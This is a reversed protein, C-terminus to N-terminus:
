QTLRTFLGYGIAAMAGGLIASVLVWIVRDLVVNKIRSSDVALLELKEIRRDLQESDTRQKDRASYHSRTTNKLASDIHEVAASMRIIDKTIEDFVNETKDVHRTLIDALKRQDTESRELLKSIVDLESPM